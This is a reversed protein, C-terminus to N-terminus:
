RIDIQTFKKMSISNSYFFTNLGGLNKKFSYVFVQNDNDWLM